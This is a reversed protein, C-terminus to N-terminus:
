NSQNLYSEFDNLIIDTINDPLTLEDGKICGLDSDYYGTFVGEDSLVQIQYLDNELKTYNTGYTQNNIKFTSM